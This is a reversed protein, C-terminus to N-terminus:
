CDPDDEYEQRAKRIQEEHDDDDENSDDSEEVKSCRIGHLLLQREVYTLKKFIANRSKKDFQMAFLDFPCYLNIVDNNNDTIKLDKLARNRVDIPQQIYAILDFPLPLMDFKSEDPEYCSILSTCSTNNKLLRLTTLYAIRDKLTDSAVVSLKFTQAKIIQQTKFKDIQTQAYKQRILACHLELETTHCKFRTATTQLPEM